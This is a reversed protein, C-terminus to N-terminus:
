DLRLVVFTEAAALGVAAGIQAARERWGVRLAVPDRTQSAHALRAAIKRELTPGIDVWTDPAASSFLWIERVHHPGLGSDAHEPFQRRDRAAPYVADLTARGAVRHDRHTVYPPYPREPDHTFVVDPRVERIARVIQERLARTDELDGDPHRLFRVDGLGLLRAAALQEAERLAGIEAASLVPDDSGKDGSTLLLAHVACGLDVLRAVTGGCWSEIDDPHAAVVLAREASPPGLIRPGVPGLLM